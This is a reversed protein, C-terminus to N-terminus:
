RKPCGDRPCAPLDQELVEKVQALVECWKRSTEPGIREVLDVFSQLISEEIKKIDQIAERSVSVVVKRRDQRSRERTLIRKEVLRDVMASASPPSVGLIESLETITVAGQSRTVMVAHIQPVSLEGYATCNGNGAVQETQIRNVRDRIMKGTTFIYRAQDLAEKAPM